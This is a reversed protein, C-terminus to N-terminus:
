CSPVGTAPDHPTNVRTASVYGNDGYGSDDGVTGWYWISSHYRGSTVPTGYTYCIITIVAGNGLTHMVHASTSPDTRVNTNSDVTYLTGTATANATTATANAAPAVAMLTCATAVVATVIGALRRDITRM